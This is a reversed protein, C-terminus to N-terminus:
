FDAFSSAAAVAAFPYEGYGLEGISELRALCGFSCLMRCRRVIKSQPREGNPFVTNIDMPSRMKRFWFRLYIQIDFSKRIISRIVEDTGQNDRTSFLAEM